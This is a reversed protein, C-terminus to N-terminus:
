TTPTCLVVDCIHFICAFLIFPDIIQETYGHPAVWQKKEKTIMEVYCVPIENRMWNATKAHVNRMWHASHM